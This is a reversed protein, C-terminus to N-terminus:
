YNIKVSIYKKKHNEELKQNLDGNDAYETIIILLPTKINSFFSCKFSIINPQDLIKLNYVEQMVADIQVQEM